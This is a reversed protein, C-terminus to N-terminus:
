LYLYCDLCSLVVLLIEVVGTGGIVGNNIGVIGVSMRLLLGLM